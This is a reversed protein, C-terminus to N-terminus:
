RYVNELERVIDDWNRASTKGEAFSKDRRLIEKEQESTLVLFDSTSKYDYKKKDLFALLEKDEEPNRLNVLVTM